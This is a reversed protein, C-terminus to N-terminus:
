LINETHELLRIRGSESRMGIITAKTWKLYLLTLGPECQGTKIRMRNGNQIKLFMGFHPPFPSNKSNQLQRTGLNLEPKKWPKEWTQKWNSGTLDRNLVKQGSMGM